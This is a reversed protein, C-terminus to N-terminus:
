LVSGGFTQSGGVGFGNCLGFSGRVDAVGRWDFGERSATGLDLALEPERELEREPEREREREHDRERDADCEYAHDADFTYDNALDDAAAWIRGARLGGAFHRCSAHSEVGDSRRRRM